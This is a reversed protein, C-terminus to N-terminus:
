TKKGDKIYIYVSDEGDLEKWKVTLKQNNISDVQIYPQKIDIM